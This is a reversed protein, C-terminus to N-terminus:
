WFDNEIKKALKLLLNSISFITWMKILLAM